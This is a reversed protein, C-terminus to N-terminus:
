FSADLQIQAVHRGKSINDGFFYEYAGQLKFAYHYVYVNIGGDLEKGGTNTSAILAPDTNGLPRLDGWSAVLEVRDNVMAGAQVVYGIGSRSWERVDAGNVIGALSGQRSQRYIVEALMSFGAYKFVVDAAAHGYDFTGQTLTAGFTSKQRNTSQNYAGGFGIALRPKRLRYVDGELYDDFPGFPTIAIRGVYLFGVGAGGFRNKGEGGMFALTYGLIGHSGFLNKSSLAIGVDRDMGLESLAQARDPFQQSYEYTTRGRDLPVFTQGVRINLDRLRTYDIWADLIPSPSDKDTDNGGFALHLVFRLDRTLVHGEIWLRATKVNLENTTPVGPVVTVTDRVQVRPRISLSFRDGVSLILGRGPTPVYSIMKAWGSAGTAADSQVAQARAESAALRAKLKQQEARLEDLEAQMQALQAARPDGAPEQASAITGLLLALAAGIRPRARM